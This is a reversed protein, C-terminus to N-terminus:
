GSVESGGIIGSPVGEFGVRDATFVVAAFGRSYVGGVATFWWRGGSYIWQQLDVATFGSNYIWQWWDVATFVVLQLVVPAETTFRHTRFYQWQDVATFVVLQLVVLAGTTFRYSYSYIQQQLDVGPSGTQLDM